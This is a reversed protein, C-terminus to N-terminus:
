RLTHINNFDPMEWIGFVGSAFGVCLLNNRPQFSTCIIRAYNQKFFRRAVVRWDRADHSPAVTVGDEEEDVTQKIGRRGIQDCWM